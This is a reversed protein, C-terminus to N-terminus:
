QGTKSKFYEITKKLGEELSVKPEWGLITAARSIDPQRRQPDSELFQKEKIIIGAPNKTISNIIEAFQLISLEHPNGLNVPLHEESMLLRYIGDILDSVYCFSRTQTGNGYITLPEQNLAQRIFNPVVRGDDLRMRPGYTNFIRAIKTDINHMRHYAMTLSESFRKAEDYVSREGIPDVYGWYTEKQPHEQPDGYIESTSALLFRAGFHRAVGLTNHTGLAGAKMTQIPLNPYGFPSEPNPSAPSAFHLIAEVKGPVFIFNAVDHRIFQFHPNGALHALNEQRGTIFNDMGIVDHGEQILKDTLHSGLFGAAGTILIRM